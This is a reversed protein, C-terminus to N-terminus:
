RVTIYRSEGKAILMECDFVEKFRRQLFTKAQSRLVVLVYRENQALGCQRLSIANM